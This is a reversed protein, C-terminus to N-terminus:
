RGAPIASLYLVADGDFPSSFTRQDAGEITGGAVTQGTAPNFWEISLRESSRSLDVTFSAASPTYVLYAAPTTGVLAFGTSAIDDRPNMDALNVRHAYDNAYGLSQRVGPWEGRGCDGPYWWPACTWVDMFLPYEGRLFSMWVWGRDGCIGCLHDTDAVIVKAGTAVPRQHLDGAPSIWDAPSAFLLENVSAPSVGPAVYFSTMGVPHQLAKSSEYSKILTIFHYQWEVSDFGSENSIEFLVNDLDSLSDIVHRVYREQIALTAPVKLSHIETGQSDGNVDGSIGNINNAANFPHGRWPNHGWLGKDDISWGNFLMVSVYFGREGARQVRQRLREFYDEDFESLDFRPLGDLAEGPGTRRYPHPAIQFKSINHWSGWRAQEWHWLRFFNHHHGELVDLFREYDFPSPPNRDDVDQLNTWTHSGTLYVAHGEDDAFYRPNSDSKRLPGRAARAKVDSTPLPAWAPM